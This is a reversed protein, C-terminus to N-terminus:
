VNDGSKTFADMCQKIYEDMVDLFDALRSCKKISNWFELGNRKFGGRLFEMLESAQKTQVEEFLDRTITNGKKEAIELTLKENQKQLKLIEEVRKEDDGSPIKLSGERWKICDILNYTDDKNKPMGNKVWASISRRNVGWIVCM